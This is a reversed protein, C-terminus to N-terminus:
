QVEVIIISINDSAGNKYVTDVLRSISEKFEAKRKAKWMQRFIEEEACHKYLGDSCLLFRTRPKVVATSIEPVIKPQKGVAKLLKGRNPHKTIEEPSLRSVVDYSNEWVDDRTLIKKTFGKLCYVRSDGISLIASKNEYILLIVATSASVATDKFKEYIQRNVETLKKELSDQMYTFDHSSESKAQDETWEKMAATIMSSAIEGHSAGGVGDAVCFLGIRGNAYSYISDQNIDRKLGTDTIAAFTIKM